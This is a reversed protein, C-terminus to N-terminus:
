SLRLPRHQSVYEAGPESNQLADLEGGEMYPAMDLVLPFEFHDSVKARDLIEMDFIIRRTLGGGFFCVCWVCACVCVSTM